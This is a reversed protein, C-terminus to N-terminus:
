AAAVGAPAADRREITRVDRSLLALATPGVVLAAAGLLTWRNGVAQAVPGIVALGIPLLVLSGLADYSAVRSLIERPVHQQMTTDWLVGFVEVFFGALFAAGVVVQAPFPRALSLPFLALPFVALTGALLMRRPRLRLMLAGCLVLGVSQATLAAGWWAAGGFHAKAVAPGLVNVAGSEAANVVAFQAVIAWLWTRDRFAGWGLRLEQLMGGAAVPDARRVRMAALIVAALVYSVADALIAVGPSTAAVIVGGLSAGVITTANISLRLAANAQQLATEPVTHPTLGASAPYFFASSAGNVAALAALQWIRADGSLLLVAAALQSAGSLLNSGVMVLHRPLRDAWVGGVLVFVVTPLQRAALVYGLDAKSGTLDLVAFALAIPAM